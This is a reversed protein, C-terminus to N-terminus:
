RSCNTTGRDRGKGRSRNKMRIRKKVSGLTPLLRWLGLTYFFMGDHNTWQGLPDPDEGGVGM